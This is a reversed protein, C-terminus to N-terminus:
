NSTGESKLYVILAEHNAKREEDQEDDCMDGEQRFGCGCGEHSGLYHVKLEGFHHVAQKEFESSLLAVNFAPKKEDWPILPVDTKTGIYLVLCM